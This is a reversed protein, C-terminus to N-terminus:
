RKSSKELMRVVGHNAAVEINDGTAIVKTAYKTGVICPINLERSVIAAHCTMGGEDTVIAKAKKMAPIFDPTTMGTVLIQGAPIQLAKQASIAVYATGSVKGTSASIGQIDAIDDLVQTYNEAYAKRAKKGSLKPGLKGDRLLLFFNGSRRNLESESVALRKTKLLSIIEQSDSWELLKVPTKFIKALIDFYGYEWQSYRMQMEKRKDHYVAFIQYLKLLHQLNRNAKFNYLRNLKRLSLGYNKQSLGKVIKQPSKLQKDLTDVIQKEINKMDVRGWGAYIWWYKNLIKQVELDFTKSNRVLKHNRLKLAIAAIDRKETNIPSEIEPATLITYCSAFAKSLEAEPLFKKLHLKIHKAIDVMLAEDLADIVMSYANWTKVLENFSTYTRLHQKVSYSFMLEQRQGHLFDMLNKQHKEWGRLFDTLKKQRSFYAVLRKGVKFLESQDYHWYLTTNVFYTLHNTIGFGILEELGKSIGFLCHDVIHYSVNSRIYEQWKPKQTQQSTNLFVRLDGQRYRRDKRTGIRIALLKGERDWKRLTVPKLGLLDSAEKLTLLKKTTM